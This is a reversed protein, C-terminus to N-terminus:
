SEEIWPSVLRTRIGAAWTAITEETLGLADIAAQALRRWAEDNTEGFVVENHADRIAEAVADIDSM